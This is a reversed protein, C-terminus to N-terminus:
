MENSFNIFFKEQFVPSTTVSNPSVLGTDGETSGIM